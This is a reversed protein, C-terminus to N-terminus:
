LCFYYYKTKRLLIDFIYFNMITIVIFEFVANGLYKKRKPYQVM